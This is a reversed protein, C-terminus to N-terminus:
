GEPSWRRTPEDSGGLLRFRGQRLAVELAGVLPALAGVTGAELRVAGPWREGVAIRLYDLLVPPAGVPGGVLILEPDVVACVSSVAQALVDSITRIMRLGAPDGATGADLVARMAAIDNAPGDPRGFGQQRFMQALSVQRGDSASGVPLYGIEGAMGHAGRILRDGIHLGLGFGAGVHLYAFSGVEAGAGYRREALASLNVDNEILVPVAVLDALVEAPQLFGEPFPSRPVELVLHSIPDVANAVSIAVGGLPGRGTANVSAQRVAQRLSGALARADGSAVAPYRVELFARGGLDTACLAIGDQDLLLALVWGADRALQYLTAVRGRLGTRAGRVSLRGAECLRQVSASITPKSIGTAASLEARTVPGNALVQDLVARDTIDRLLGPRPLPSGPRSESM